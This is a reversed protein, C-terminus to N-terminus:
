QEESTSEQEQDVEPTSPQTVEEKKSVSYGEHQRHHELLETFVKFLNQSAEEAISCRKLIEDQVEKKTIDSQAAITIAANINEHVIKHPEEIKSYIPSYGFIKRGESDFWKGLRCSHHDALLQGKKAFISSYGNLKFVIHDLEVLSLFTESSIGSASSNSSTAETKLEDFKGSFQSIYDNSSVSVKEVQESQSFMENANQKLLNINMEVEATAKQTKEALKRVEDAVVAFGRGHEGARAAEIAANLALLNTQDSVDKILNIVNSIEDVSRHLTGATERSRDASEVIMNLSENISSTIESLQEMANITSESSNAIQESQTVNRVMDEQVKTINSFVGSVLSEVLHTQLNSNNSNTDAEKIKDKLQSNENKLQQIQLQLKQIEQQLELSKNDKKNGFM